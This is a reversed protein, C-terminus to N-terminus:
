ASAFGFLAEPNRVLIRQRVADNPTWDALLDLMNADNPMNAQGPHPWDTGWLMREPARKVYAKAVEGVDAYGPAGTKSDQYSSSIKVWTNGKDLLRNIVDVAPHQLGQPQPIRGFHDIVLQSPLRMLVDQIKVIDAAFM